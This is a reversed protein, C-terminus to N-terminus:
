FDDKEKLKIQVFNLFLLGNNIGNLISSTLLSFNCFFKKLKIFNLMFKQRRWRTLAMLKVKRDSIIKGRCIKAQSRPGLFLYHIKKSNEIKM